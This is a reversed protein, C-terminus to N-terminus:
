FQAPINGNEAQDPEPTLWWFEFGDLDDDPPNMLILESGDSTIIKTGDTGSDANDMRRDAAPSTCTIKWIGLGIFMAVFVACTCLLVIKPLKNM